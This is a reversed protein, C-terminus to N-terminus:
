QKNKHSYECLASSHRTGHHKCYGPTECTFSSHGIILCNLCVGLRLAHYWRLVLGGRKWGGCNYMRHDEKFRCFACHTANHNGVKQTWIEAMGVLQPEDRELELNIPPSHSMPPYRVGKVPGRAKVQEAWIYGQNSNRESGLLVAQEQRAIQDCQSPPRGEITRRYEMEASYVETEQRQPDDRSEGWSIKPQRSEAIEVPHGDAEAMAALSQAGETETPQTMLATSLATDGIGRYRQAMGERLRECVMRYANEFAKRNVKTVLQINTHYLGHNINIRKNLFALMVQDMPTTAEIEAAYFKLEDICAQLIGALYSSTVYPAM